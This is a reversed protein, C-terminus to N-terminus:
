REKLIAGLAEPLRAAWASEHHRGEADHVWVYDKGPSYGKQQLADLMADIGPQLTAELGVGGNDLYFFPSEAPHKSEQVTRVYDMAMTGDARKMQFAPSMCLAKSFVEAHEWVLRFACLGGASSGGTFTHMRDPLTRYKADILPKVEDIVFAAYAEGKPGPLYERTRHRTNYIGVVIMPPITNSEMLRTCTEDMEWDVGFASTQPDVLNQGDHMYLVPHRQQSDAYGPPLWVILDRPLIGQGQIQRHYEVKGTIQGRFTREREETWFLIVNTVFQDEAATIAFNSLPEGNAHAGERQWSGLTFKYEIVQGDPCRIEHTWSHDGSSDMRIRGPHWNGLSPLSGTIYVPTDQPLDPANLRFTVDVEDTAAGMVGAVTTLILTVVTERMALISHLNRLATWSGKCLGRTRWM